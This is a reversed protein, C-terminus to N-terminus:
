RAQIGATVLADWLVQLGADPTLALEVRRGTQDEAAIHISNKRDFPTGAWGIRDLWMTASSSEVVLDRSDGIWGQPASVEFSHQM